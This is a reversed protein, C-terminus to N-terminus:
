GGALMLTIHIDDGDKVPKVLEDPYASKQNIYIEVANLLKGKKDFLANRMDPFQRILDELCDGVNNGEVEVTDLGDTFQRHTRHISINISM